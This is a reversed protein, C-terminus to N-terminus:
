DGWEKLEDYRKAYDNAAGMRAIATIESELRYPHKCIFHDEFRFDYQAMGTPEIVVWIKDEILTINPPKNEVM